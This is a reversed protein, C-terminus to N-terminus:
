CDKLVEKIDHMYASAHSGLDCQDTGEQIIQKIAELKELEKIARILTMRSIIAYHKDKDHKDYEEKFIDIVKM